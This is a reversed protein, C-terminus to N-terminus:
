VKPADMAPTLVREIVEFLVKSQLPKSLYEDMGAQLCREKDGVMAHATMAIIPIHKGTSKEIERIRKVAEIGDMEPMQVDMLAVDFSHQEFFELAKIGTEAVVVSHGRKELVRVALKQNVANDEALLIRLRRRNERLSHLTVLSPASDSATQPGLVALIAELLDSRLVPKNLYAKIGLERCRAADGRAGGSTLMIATTDAYRGSEKLGEALTFGDVEPMQADLLMLRIPEGRSQAEELIEVGRNADAALFPKMEWGRLIEDLVRRNTANDDVVLVSLGALLQPPAPEAVGFSFKQLPFKVRFHFTSGKGPASELWINGGMINVLRSSIALGLGTGGYKRTMSSDSQTFAEFISEQKELPVGMGTDCVSFHLWVEGESESETEARVVVEGCTTFKIANGALNLVVQRLRTPDGLLADPVDPLVHCALELGKQHARFSLSRMTEDLTARLAFEICEMDLKGAEIKSFDLIDNLISLLSEASAKVTSLYERQERTLETDLALETMGIVGNMPTRIEHSMNALFASKAINSAEAAEKATKLEKGTRERFIFQAVQSGLTMLMEILEDDPQRIERSFFEMVGLVAGELSVPVAFAASLGCKSAAEARPIEQDVAVHPVWEARGASWARGPLGSGRPFITARTEVALEEMAQDPVHWVVLCRLVDAARDLEWFAGFEWRTGEGVTRLIEPIAQELSNADALIQAVAHHVGLREKSGQRHIRARAQQYSFGLLFLAGFAGLLAAQLMRKQSVGSLVSQPVMAVIKWVYPSAHTRTSLENMVKEYVLRDAAALPSITTFAYFGRRGYFKGTDSSKIAQWAAPSSDGLTKDMKEEYMFGWNDGEVPGKLWYGDANLLMIESDKSDGAPTVKSLINKGEYSFVLVGRKYGEPDFVPTSFLITPHIPKELLGEEVNLEFPSVFVEQRELALTRVFYPRESIDNLDDVPVILPAGHNYNVRAIEVGKEDVVRIEFYDTKRRCWRLLELNMAMRNAKGPHELYTLLAPNESLVLLDSVAPEFLAGIEQKVLQVNEAESTEMRVRWVKMSAFYFSFAAAGVFVLLLWFVPGLNILIDSARLPSQYKEGGM